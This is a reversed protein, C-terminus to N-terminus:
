TEIFALDLLLVWIGQLFCKGLKIAAERISSKSGIVHHFRDKRRLYCLWVSWWGTAPISLAAALSSITVASFLV